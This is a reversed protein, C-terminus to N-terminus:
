GQEKRRMDPSSFFMWWSLGHPNNSTRVSFYLHSGNSAWANASKKVGISSYSGSSRAVANSQRWCSQNSGAAGHTRNVGPAFVGLLELEDLDTEGSVSPDPPSRNLFTFSPCLKYGPPSSASWEGVPNPSVKVGGGNMLWEWEVPCENPTTPDLLRPWRCMIGIRSWVLGRNKLQSSSTSPSSSSSSSSPIM